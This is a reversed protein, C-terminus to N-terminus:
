TILNSYKRYDCSYQFLSWEKVKCRETTRLSKKSQQVAIIAVSVKTKLAFRIQPPIHIEHRVLACWRHNKIMEREDGSFTSWVSSIHCASKLTSFEYFNAVDDDARIIFDGDNVIIGHCNIKKSICSIVAISDVCITLVRVLFSELWSFISIFLKESSFFPHKVRPLTAPIIHMYNIHIGHIDPTPSNREWAAVNM